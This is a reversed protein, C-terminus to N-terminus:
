QSLQFDGTMDAFQRLRSPITSCPLKTVGHPYHLSVKTRVETVGVLLYGSTILFCSSLARMRWSFWGLNKISLIENIFNYIADVM